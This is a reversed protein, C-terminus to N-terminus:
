EMRCIQAAGISGGQCGIGLTQHAKGAGPSNGRGGEEGAERCLNLFVARM